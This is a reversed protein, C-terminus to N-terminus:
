RASRHSATRRFRRERPTHRRASSAAPTAAPADTTSKDLVPLAMQNAWQQIHPGAGRIYLETTRLSSHGLIEQIVVTPVGQYAMRTAASHRVAHLRVKRDVGAILCLEDLLKNLGDHGLLRGRDALFLADPETRQFRAPNKRAAPRTALWQRRVELRERLAALTQDPLPILRAKDGKGHRITLSGNTFDVDSVRLPMLDSFRTAATGATLILAQAMCRRRADFLRQTAEHLAQLDETTVTTREVAGKAPLEIGILPNNETYEQKIAYVLMSRVATINRHVTRASRKRGLEQVLRNAWRRDITETDPDSCGIVTSAARCQRLAARYTRVTNPSVMRQRALYDLYERALDALKM